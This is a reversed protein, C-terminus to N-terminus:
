PIFHLSTSQIYFQLFRDLPLKVEFTAEPEDAAKLLQQLVSSAVQISGPTLETERGSSHSLAVATLYSWPM